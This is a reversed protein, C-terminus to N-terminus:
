AKGHRIEKAAKKAAKCMKGGVEYQKCVNPRNEYIGCKGGILHKCPSHIRFISGGKSLVGRMKAWRREDTSMRPIELRVFM